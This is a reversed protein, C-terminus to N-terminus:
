CAGINMSGRHKEFAPKPLGKTLTDAIMQKTESHQVDIENKQVADRVYHYKIDIHKTRTHDKPNKSLSIAGRNDEFVKTSRAQEERLSRLLRRLWVAEQTASCLAIYEAETTSLAVVSQKKSAWAVTAKGLKFIYGSTSKRTDVDGAWDADSYGILEFNDSREFNLGFQLTGKIYRLVRKAAVWHEKNPRSMHQSLKGVAESIDPRTAISAYVLSGILAQFERTKFGEEDDPTEEYHKGPEMPTSVPNCDAMGFRELVSQLYASQDITLVGKNRNRKISMGLISKVEGLDTMDFKENLVKKADRLMKNCNSAIITDDVYLAIIVM